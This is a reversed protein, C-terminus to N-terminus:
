PKVKERVNYLAVYLAFKLGYKSKLFSIIGYFFRYTAFHEGFFETSFSFLVCASKSEWFINLEPASPVPKRVEGFKTLGTPVEFTGEESYDFM